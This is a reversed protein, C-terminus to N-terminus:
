QKKCRVCAVLKCLMAAVFVAACVKIGLILNNPWSLSRELWSELNLSRFYWPDIYVLTALNKNTCCAL